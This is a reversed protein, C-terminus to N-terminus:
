LSLCAEWFTSRSSYVKSLIFKRVPPGCMVHINLLIFLRPVPSVDRMAVQEMLIDLPLVSIKIMMGDISGSTVGAMGQM